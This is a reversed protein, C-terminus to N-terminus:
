LNLTVDVTAQGRMEVGIQTQHDIEGDDRALLGQFRFAPVFTLWRQVRLEVGAGLSVVPAVARSRMEVRGDFSPADLKTDTFGVGAGFRVLPNVHFRDPSPSPVPDIDVQAGFDLVVYDRTGELADAPVALEDFYGSADHLPHRSHDLDLQLATVPSLAADLRLRQAFGVGYGGGNGGVIFGVGPGVALSATREWPEAEQALATMVLLLVM